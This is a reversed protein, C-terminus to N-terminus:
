LVFEGQIVLMEEEAEKEEAEMTAKIARRSNM